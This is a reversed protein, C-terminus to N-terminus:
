SENVAELKSTTVRITEAGFRNTVEIVSQKDTFKRVYKGEIQRKKFSGSSITYLVKQGMQFETM